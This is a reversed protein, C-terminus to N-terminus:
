KCLQQGWSVKFDKFTPAQDYDNKAVEAGLVM